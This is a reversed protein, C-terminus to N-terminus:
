ADPEVYRWAIALGLMGALGCLGFGTALGAFDALAGVIVPGSFMGLAYLSQFVGMATAKTGSAMTAVSFSMLLPFLLGRGFGSVIQSVYLQSLHELAPIIASSVAMLLFGFCISRRFGMHRTFWSGSLMSAAISPISSLTSLLGLEFNSAGLNKAAVPVFGFLAGYAILQVLGALTAAVLLHTNRMVIPVEALRLPVSGDPTTEKIRLSLLFAVAAGGTM